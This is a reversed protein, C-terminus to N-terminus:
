QETYGQGRPPALPVDDREDVEVREIWTQAYVREATDRIINAWAENLSTGVWVPRGSWHRGYVRYVIM